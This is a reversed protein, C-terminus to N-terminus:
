LRSTTPDNKEIMGIKMRNTHKWCYKISPIVAPATLSYTDPRHPNYITYASPRLSSGKRYASQADAIFVLGYLRLASNTLSISYFTYKAAM